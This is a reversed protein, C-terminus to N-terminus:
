CDFLIVNHAGAICTSLRRSSSSRIGQRKYVDLHTYSVAPTYRDIEPDSAYEYLDDLDTSALARLLLRPTSLVPFDPFRTSEM